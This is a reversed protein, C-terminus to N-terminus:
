GTDDMWKVSHLSTSGSKRWQALSKYGVGYEDAVHANLGEWCARDLLAAWAREDERELSVLFPYVDFKGPHECGMLNTFAQAIAGYVAGSVAESLQRDCTYHLSGAFDFRVTYM